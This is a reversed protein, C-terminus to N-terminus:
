AQTSSVGKQYLCQMLYAALYPLLFTVIGAAAGATEITFHACENM